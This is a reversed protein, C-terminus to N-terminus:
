SNNSQKLINKIKNIAEVNDVKKNQESQMSQAEKAKADEEKARKKAEKQEREAKRKLYEEQEKLLREKEQEPTEIINRAQKQEKAKKFAEDNQQVEALTKIGQSIWNNIIGKTYKWNRKGTEVARKIAEIIMDDPIQSQYEEIEELIFPSLLGINQEYFLTVKNINQNINNLYEQSQAFSDANALQNSKDIYEKKINKNNINKNNINKNGKLKEPVLEKIKESSTRLNKLTNIKLKELVLEENIKIFRKAPLGKIKIDILGQDKLSNLAKRQKYESLTTHEEINEITSYFYGNELLEQKNWYDYESALEGLLIAEELGIAKILDKNLTIFNNNSILNLITM